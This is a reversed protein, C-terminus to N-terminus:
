NIITAPAPRDHEDCLHKAGCLCVLWFWTGSPHPFPESSFADGDKLCDAHQVKWEVTEKVKGSLHECFKM